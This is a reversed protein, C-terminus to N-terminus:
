FSARLLAADAGDSVDKRPDTLALKRAAVDGEAKALAAELAVIAAELRAEEAELSVATARARRREDVSSAASLLGSRAVLGTNKVRWLDRQAALIAAKTQEVEFRSLFLDRGRQYASAFAAAEPGVCLGDDRAGAAGLAFGQEPACAAEAPAPEAAHSAAHSAAP